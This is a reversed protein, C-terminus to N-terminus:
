RGRGNNKGRATVLIVVVALVLFPLLHPPVFWRGVLLPFVFGFLVVLGIVPPAIGYGQKRIGHEQKRRPAPRSEQPVSPTTPAAALRPRPEPLDAFLALLEKRFRAALARSCREEYETLELRGAAVHQGLAAIAEEREADGIRLDPERPSQEM